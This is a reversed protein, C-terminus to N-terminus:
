VQKKKKENKLDKFLQKISWILAVIIVIGFISAIVGSIIYDNM